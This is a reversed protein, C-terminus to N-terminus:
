KRWPTRSTDKVYACQKWNKNIKEYVRYTSTEDIFQILYKVFFDREPMRTVRVTKYFQGQANTPDGAKANKLDYDEAKYELFSM